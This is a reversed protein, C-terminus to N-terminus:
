TTWALKSILETPSVDWKRWSKNFVTIVANRNLMELTNVDEKLHPDWVSSFYEVKLRVITTYALERTSRPCRRLNRAIPHLTSGAKKTAACTQENWTLDDRITVGM